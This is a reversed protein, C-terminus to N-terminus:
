VTVEVRGDRYILVNNVRSPFRTHDDAGRRVAAMKLEAGEYTTKLLEARHSPPLQSKCMGLESYKERGLISLYMVDGNLLALGDRLLPKTVYENFRKISINHLATRLQLSSRPQRDLAEIAQHILSGRTYKSKM